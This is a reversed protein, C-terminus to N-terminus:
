PLEAKSTRTSSTERGSRNSKRDCRHPPACRGSPNCRKTSDIRPRDDVCAKRSPSTVVAVQGVPMQTLGLGVTAGVLLGIGAFVGYRRMVSPKRAPPHYLSIGPQRRM